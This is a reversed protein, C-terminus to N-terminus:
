TGRFECSQTIFVAGRQPGGRSIKLLPGNVAARPSGASFGPSCFWPCSGRFRAGSAVRPTGMGLCPRGGERRAM